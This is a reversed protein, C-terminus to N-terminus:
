VGQGYQTPFATMSPYQFVRHCVTGGCKGGDPHLHLECNASPPCVPCGGLVKWEHSVALPECSDAIRGSEVAWAFVREWISRVVAPNPQNM